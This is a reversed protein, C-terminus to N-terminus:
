KEGSSLVKALQGQLDKLKDRFEQKSERRVPRTVFGLM